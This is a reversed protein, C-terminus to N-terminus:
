FVLFSLSILAIGILLTFMCGIGFAENVDQPRDIKKKM